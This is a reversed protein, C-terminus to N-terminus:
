AWRREGQVTQGTFFPVMSLVLIDTVVMLNKKFDWFLLSKVQMAASALFCVVAFNIVLLM